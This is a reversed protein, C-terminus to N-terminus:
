FGAENVARHFDALGQRWPRMPRGVARAIPEVDLVSYAPRIAQKPRMKLWEATSCSSVQASVGFEKLAAQAFEFWSAQGSNTVHWLGSQGHDLLDFTSQALDGTYTPSGIQDDVVKLTAGQRGREVITRPFSPGGRGYLWATRLILYREPANQQLQTEGLLKSRGYASLPHPPDDARYPRRSSGDFVFDTSYHVLTTGCERASRALLGVARGNIADAKEPEDECLDVKTHAACNILLTPKYEAFLKQVAAESTIDVTDRDVGRFSLNRARLTAAIAQALMGYSGAIIISDYLAM